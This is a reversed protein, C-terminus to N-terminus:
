KKGDPLKYEIKNGNFAILKREELKRVVAESVKLTVKNRLLPVIHRLLADRDAPKNRPHARLGSIVNDVDDNVLTDRPAPKPKKAPAKKAVPKPPKPAPAPKPQPRPPSVGPTLSAALALADAISGARGVAAGLARMHDFLVDFGNDNSVVVYCASGGAAADQQQAQGLAFAIHFDLANKGNKASQVLRVREGLPLWAAVLDVAFKNQHPGHFVWIRHETGHLRAFDEALPQHNEFDIFLHTRLKM